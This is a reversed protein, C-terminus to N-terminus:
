APSRPRDPCRLRNRPACPACVFLVIRRERAPPRKARAAARRPSGQPAHPARGTRSWGTQSYRAPRMTARAARARPLTRRFAPPPPSPARRSTMREAPVRPSGTSSTSGTSRCSRPPPTTTSGRRARRRPTGASALERGLTRRVRHYRDTRVVVRRLLPGAHRGQRACGRQACGGRRAATSATAFVAVVAARRRPGCTRRPRAM